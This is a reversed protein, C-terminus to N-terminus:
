FLLYIALGIALCAITARRLRAGFDAGGRVYYFAAILCIGLLLVPTTV